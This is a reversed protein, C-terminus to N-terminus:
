VPPHQIRLPGATYEEFWRTLGKLNNLGTVSDMYLTSDLHHILLQQRANGLHITFVLNLVDSLRKILQADTDLDMTHAAYFGCVATGTHLTNFLTIGTSLEKPPKLESLKCETIVFDEEKDRYPIYLLEEELSDANYDVGSYIGLFRKNLCIYSDPLISTSIM